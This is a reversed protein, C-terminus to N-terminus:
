GGCVEEAIEGLVRKLEDNGTPKVIIRKIGLGKLAAGDQASIVSALVYVPIARLEEVGQMWALLEFGSDVGLRLETIIADPMPYREADRYLGGRTLYARAESLSGCLFSTCEPLAKLARELLFADDANSEVVLIQKNGEL